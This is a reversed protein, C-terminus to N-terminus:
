KLGLRQTQFLMLLKTKLYSKTFTGMSKHAFAERHSLELNPLFSTPEDFKVM